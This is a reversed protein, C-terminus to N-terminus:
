RAEGRVLGRRHDAVRARREAGGGPRQGVDRFSDCGLARNAYTWRAPVLVKPSTCGADRRLERCARRARPVRGRLVRRRGTLWRDEGAGAARGSYKTWTDLLKQYAADAMDVQPKLLPRQLLWQEISCSGRRALPEGNPAASGASDIPETLMRQLQGRLDAVITPVAEDRKWTPEDDVVVYIPASHAITMNRPDQKSGYGRVAIWM